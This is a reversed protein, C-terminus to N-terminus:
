WRLAGKHRDGDQDHIIMRDKAEPQPGQNAGLRIHL